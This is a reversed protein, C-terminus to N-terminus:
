RVNPYLRALRNPHVGIWALTLLMWNWLTQRIVGKKQWRRPSVHLKTDLLQVVGRKRLARMFYLDEMLKFEPFGGIEEFQNRRVFIGQDGYALKWWRVRAGNGWELARFLWGQADIRQRFCGGVVDARALQKRIEELGGRELWCDAHLFLIVEGTAARAGLNQQAGRGPPSVMVRDALQCHETTGDTSGGDVVVVECEGMERIKQLTEAIRPAENLVPVVVSIRM